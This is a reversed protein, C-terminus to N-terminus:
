ERKCSARAGGFSGPLLSSSLTSVEFYDGGRGLFLGALWLAASTQMTAMGVHLVPHQLYPALIQVFMYLAPYSLFYASAALQFKDLFGQVRLGTLQRLQRICCVFWVFLVLRVLLLTWGTAGGNEHHKDMHDGQISGHGVLVAHLLAVPLAIGKLADVGIEKQLTYGSAIALLLTCSAVQSLMFLMSALAELASDSAGRREHLQLHGLHCLEAAWQLLVAGALALIVPHLEGARAKIRCAQRGFHLLLGSLGLVVLLTAGPMLCVEYSLESENEQVFRVEYEIAQTTNQSGEAECTSLAFYWIHTRIRHSITGSDWESWEGTVKMNSSARAFSKAKDSCRPEGIVTPWEEDMFGEFRVPVEGTPNRARARVSWRGRGIGFGFKGVYGWHRGLEEGNSQVIGTELRGLATSSLWALLLAVHTASMGTPV